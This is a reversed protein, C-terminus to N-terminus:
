EIYGEVPDLYSRMKWYSELFEYGRRSLRWSPTEEGDQTALGLRVLLGLVRRTRDVPM